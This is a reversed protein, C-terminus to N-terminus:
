NHGLWIAELRNAELSVVRMAGGGAVLSVKHDPQELAIAAITVQGHDAFAEISSRDVLIRLRLTDGTLKLPASATGLRLTQDASTTSVRWASPRTPGSKV